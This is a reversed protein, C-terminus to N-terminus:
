TTALVPESRVHKAAMYAKVEEVLDKNSTKTPDWKGRATHKEPPASLRPLNIRQQPINATVSLHDTDVEYPLSVEVQMTDTGQGKGYIIIDDIQSCCPACHLPQSQYTHQKPLEGNTALATIGGPAIALCRDIFEKHM